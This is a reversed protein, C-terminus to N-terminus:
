EVALAVRRMCFIEVTASLLCDVEFLTLVVFRKTPSDKCCKDSFHELAAVAITM